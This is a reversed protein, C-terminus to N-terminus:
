PATRTRWASPPAGVRAKFVDSFHDPDNYGVASAVECVRNVPNCLLDKARALRLQELYQHFTVGMTTSFLDSLYAANMNLAAAVDGLQMPRSYHGHIYDLMRQVLQQRHSSRLPASRAAYQMLANSNM